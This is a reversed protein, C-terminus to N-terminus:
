SGKNKQNVKFYLTKNKDITYDTLSSSLKQIHIYDCPIVVRLYKKDKEQTIKYGSDDIVLMTNGLDNKDYSLLIFKGVEWNLKAALELTVKVYLRRKKESQSFTISVWLAEGGRVRHNGHIRKVAEWIPKVTGIDQMKSEDFLSDLPNYGVPLAPNMPKNFNTPKNFNSKM